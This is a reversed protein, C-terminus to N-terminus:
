PFTPAPWVDRWTRTRDGIVAYVRDLGAIADPHNDWKNWKRQLAFAVMDALQVGPSANSSVFHMTDIVTRLPRGPVPGGGWEQLDAVMRIARLQHEKAEDAILIKHDFYYSDIKELLFQLALLYANNDASGDHRDHLRQKHISAYSVDIELESLVGVAQEYAAMLEGPSKGQWHGSGGWIETGHLEFNAPVWGLHDWAVQQLAKALPQVKEVDVLVAALTLLPQRKAARGVSGTEDIYVLQAM